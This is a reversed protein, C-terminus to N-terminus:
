INSKRNWRQDSWDKLTCFSSNKIKAYRATLGKLVFLSQTTSSLHLNKLKEIGM